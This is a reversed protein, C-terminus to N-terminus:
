ILTSDKRGDFYLEKLPLAQAESLAQFRLDKRVKAKERRLKNKVSVLDSNNTTILGVDHLVSLGIAAVARDSVGFSDGVVAISSNGLRMQSSKSVFPTLQKHKPDTLSILRNSISPKYTYLNLDVESIDLSCDTEEDEYDVYGANPTAQTHNLYLNHAKRDTNDAINQLRKMHFLFSRFRVLPQPHTVPGRKHVYDLNRFSIQGWSAPKAQLTKNSQQKRLIPQRSVISALNGINPLYSRIGKNNESYRM